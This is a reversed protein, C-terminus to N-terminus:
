RHAVRLPPRDGLHPSADLVEIESRVRPPRITTRLACESQKTLVRNRELSQAASFYSCRRLLLPRIADWGFRLASSDRGRKPSPCPSRPMDGRMDRSRLWAELRGM